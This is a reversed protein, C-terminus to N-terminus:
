KIVECKGKICGCRGQGCDLTGPRCEMSCLVGKCSPAYLSPVCSTAHCCSSPVCDKDESCSVNANEVKGSEEIQNKKEEVWFTRESIVVVIATFILFVLLAKIIFNLGRKSMM